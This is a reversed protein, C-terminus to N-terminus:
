FTSSPASQGIWSSRAKCSVWFFLRFDPLRQLQTAGALAQSPLPNYQLATKLSPSAAKSFVEAAKSVFSGKESVSVIPDPLIYFQLTASQPYFVNVSANWSVVIYVADARRETFGAGRCPHDGWLSPVSRNFQLSEVDIVVSGFNPSDTVVFM